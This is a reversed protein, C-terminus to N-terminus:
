RYSSYTLQRHKRAIAKCLEDISPLGKPNGNRLLMTVKVNYGSGLDANCDVSRYEQLPHSTSDRKLSRYQRPSSSM